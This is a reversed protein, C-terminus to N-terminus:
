CNRMENEFKSKTRSLKGNKLQMCISLRKQLAVKTTKGAKGDAEPICTFSFKFKHNLNMEAVSSIEFTTKISVDRISIFFRIFFELSIYAASLIFSNESKM